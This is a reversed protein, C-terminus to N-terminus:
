QQFGFININAHMSHLHHGIKRSFTTIFVERKEQDMCTLVSGIAKKGGTITPIVVTKSHRSGTGIYLGRHREPM